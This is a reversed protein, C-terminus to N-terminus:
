KGTFRIQLFLATHGTKARYQGQVPNCHKWSFFMPYARVLLIWTGVFIVKLISAIIIKSKWKELLQQHPHYKMLHFQSRAIPSISQEEQQICLLYCMMSGACILLYGRLFVFFWKGVNFESILIWEVFIAAIKGVINSWTHRGEGGKM